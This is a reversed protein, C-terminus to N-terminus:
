WVRLVESAITAHGHATLHDDLVFYSQPDLKRFVSLSKMTKIYGPYAGRGIESNLNRLFDGAGSYIVVINVDDLEVRAANVM